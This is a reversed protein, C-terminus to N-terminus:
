DWFCWKQRWFDILQIQYDYLIANEKGRNWLYCHINSKDKIERHTTGFFNDTYVTVTSDQRMVFDSVAKATYTYTTDKSIDRVVICNEIDNEKLGLLRFKAKVLLTQGEHMVVDSYKAIADFPFEDSSNIQLVPKDSKPYSFNQKDFVNSFKLVEDDKVVHVSDSKKRSYVKLNIAQTQTNEILYPFYEKVVAQQAPFASALVLYDCKLSAMFHSFNKMNALATDSTSQFDFETKYKALYIKTMVPEIDFFLPYVKKDGYLKKYHITREFQQEYVTKVCQAYYQKKFYTKYILTLALFFAAAYFVYKNKFEIFSVVFLIMAVGSFLMVSHQYISARYISYVYVIFYNLLFLILLLWHRKEFNIKKNLVLSLVILALLILYSKGTGFLVKLFNFMADPAPKSLWGGQEFGIGGVNLQYLTVPLHPLYFVITLLCTILYNKFTTKDVFLFGSACLTFAFLANIHQNLSSLLAFLGLFFYNSIKTQKLFFIEFFYFLLATSFFVGSIYMRAIPAYFVFILSFSFIIASFIAAQKSFNRLAFFYAYIVAGFSFLLFPLKVIWNSYGFFKTLYFILIQVFAPHADIKVGKDILEEFSNFFTRSLGSLEDFTFQYDFLPIFRLLACVTFIVVFLFHEKLFKM